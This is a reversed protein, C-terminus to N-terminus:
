ESAGPPETPAASAERAKEAAKEAQEAWRQRAITLGGSSKAPVEVRLGLQRVARAAVGELRVLALMDTPVGNLMDARAVEAAVKLETARKVDAATSVSLAPWGGLREAYANALDRLRKGLATCQSVAPLQPKSTLRSRYNSPRQKVAHHEIPAQAEM